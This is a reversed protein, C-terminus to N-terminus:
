SFNIENQENYGHISSKQENYAYFKMSLSALRFWITSKAQQLRSNTIVTIVISWKSSLNLSCYHM